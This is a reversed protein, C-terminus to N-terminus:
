RAVAPARVDRGSEELIRAPLGRESSSALAMAEGIMLLAPGSFSKAAEGLEALTVLARREDPRSANEVILAPTSLSRGAEVLRAAIAAANSVGMYIVVTQNPRALSAWDLDPTEGAKAHGTVFVVAQAAGRHTLPAGASAAAALASSVGPVVHCEVGAARCAELEEGGRGFVFPDGGKLRIVTLGELAFAVLMREIEPQPYSHRSKRKVVNIRRTAQPILDLIAASVLGDHVVVDAIRLLNLAKVTLLDPDGPGAGVLWVAGRAAGRRSGLAVLGRTIRRRGTPQSQPDTM